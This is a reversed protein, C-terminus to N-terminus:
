KTAPFLFVIDAPRAQWAAETHMAEPVEVFRVAIDTGGSAKLNEALQKANRAFARNFSEPDLGAKQM